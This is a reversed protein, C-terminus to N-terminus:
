EFGAKRHTGQFKIIQLMITVRLRDRLVGLTGWHDERVVPGMKRRSKRGM